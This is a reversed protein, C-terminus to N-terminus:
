DNQKNATFKLCLLPDGTDTFVKEHMLEFGYREYFRRGIMNEKFVELALDGHLAQAKDMLAKGAGTGQFKPHVFLGGVENGILSIFGIVQNEREVVWVDARPLYIEAINIREQAIFSAPLFPHALESASEWATLVAALDSAEYKRVIDKLIL